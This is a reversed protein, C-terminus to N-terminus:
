STASHLRGRAVVFAVIDEDKSSTSRGVVAAEAVNRHELLIAEVEAPHIKAGGRIIVESVRGKLYIYGFEDLAALEGPYHWGNRFDDAASTGGRSNVIPATLGPGRCRLRGTERPGLPRDDEDVVEVDVLMHSRGVSTARESLDQPRMAAVPGIAAAGYRDYFNPTLKCAAEIKEEAFIPAGVCMFVEMGPLMPKHPEAISLLQRVVTPVVFAVTARHRNVTDVFEGATFLAPYLIVSDGRLLHSLCAVRGASFHLPLVSLYRQRRTPPILELYAAVHSYYQIHTALTFKPAGTSGSTALATFPDGWESPLDSPPIATALDAHWKSDFKVIACNTPIDFEPTTLILKPAFATAARAKEAAPSRWDIQVVMAGLRAVALLAVVHQWDDRLCLAVQDGQKIGLAALRGATDLVLEALTRYTITREDDILAAAEPQMRSHRLVPEILNM